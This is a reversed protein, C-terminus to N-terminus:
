WKIYTDKDVNPDRKHKFIVSLSFQFFLYIFLGCCDSKPIWSEEMWQGGTYRNEVKYTECNWLFLRCFNLTQFNSLFFFSSIFNWVFLLVMRIKTNVVCGGMTWSLVLTSSIAIILFRYLQIGSGEGSVMRSLFSFILITYLLVACVSLWYTLEKWVSTWWTIRLLILLDDFVLMFRVCKWNSYVVVSAGCQFPWYYTVPSSIGTERELLGWGLNQQLEYVYM